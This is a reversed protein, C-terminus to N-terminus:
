GHETRAAPGKRRQGAGLGTLAFVLARLRGGGAVPTMDPAAHAAVREREAPADVQDEDEQHAEDHRRDEDVQEAVARVVGEDPAGVQVALRDARPRV